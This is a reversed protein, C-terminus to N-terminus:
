NWSVEALYHRETAALLRTLFDISDDIGGWKNEPEYKEYESRNNKLERLARRIPLIYSSCKTDSQQKPHINLASFLLSNNYTVNRVEEVQALRDDGTYIVISVDWSM